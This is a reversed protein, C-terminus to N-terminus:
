SGLLKNFTLSTKVDRFGNRRYFEHAGHRVINSRVSLTLYGSSVAWSEVAALLMRGIGLGRHTQDVVLGMIEATNDLLLSTHASAHIWGLVAGEDEAVLVIASAPVLCQLRQTVQNASSTYGLQTALSALAHADNLSAQRTRMTM